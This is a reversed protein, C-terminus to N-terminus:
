RSLSEFIAKRADELSETADRQQQITGSHEAEMAAEQVEWCADRLKRAAEEADTQHAGETHLRYGFGRVTEVADHIGARSLKHRVRSILVSVSEPSYDADTAETALQESSLVWGPHEALRLLIEFERSTLGVERGHALVVHQHRLVQLDGVIIDDNTLM